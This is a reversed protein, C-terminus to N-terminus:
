RRPRHGDPEAVSAGIPTHKPCDLQTEADSLSLRFYRCYHPRTSAPSANPQFFVCGPCPESLLLYGAAALELSLMELAQEFVSRQDAPLRDLARELAAQGRLLTEFAQRGSETLELLTVRRDDPKARRRVLGRRALGDVVGVATAHSAGLMRALTGISAVDPRTRGCFLITQAQVPTLGLAEGEALSLRKVAAVLRTLSRAARSPPAIDVM